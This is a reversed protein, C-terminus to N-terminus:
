TRGREPRRRSADDDRQQIAIKQEGRVTEEGNLDVVRERLNVEEACIMQRQRGAQVVKQAGSRRRLQAQQRLKRSEVSEYSQDDRERQKGNSCQHAQSRIRARPHERTASRKERKARDGQHVQRTPGDVHLKGKVRGKLADGRIQQAVRQEVTDRDCEDDRNTAPAQVAQTVGFAVATATAAIAILRGINKIRGEASAAGAACAIGGAADAVPYM